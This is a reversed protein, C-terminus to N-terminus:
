WFGNDYGYGYSGCAWVQQWGFATPVWTWCSSYATAAYLGGLGLGVGFFPRAFRRRPFFPHRAYLGRFGLRGALWPRGVFGPRGV